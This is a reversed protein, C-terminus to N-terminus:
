VKDPVATDLFLTAAPFAFVSRPFDTDPSNLFLLPLRRRVVCLYVFMKIIPFKNYNVPFAGQM